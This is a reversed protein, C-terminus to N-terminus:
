SLEEEVYGDSSSEATTDRALSIRHKKQASTVSLNRQEIETVALLKFSLTYDKQSHRIYRNKIEEM